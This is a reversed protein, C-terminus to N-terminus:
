ARLEQKWFYEPMDERRLGSSKFTEPNPCPCGLGRVSGQDPIKKCWKLKWALEDYTLQLYHSTKQAEADILPTAATRAGVYGYSFTAVRSEDAVLQGNRALTTVVELVESHNDHGGYEGGADRSHTFVWDFRRGGVCNLLKRQMEGQSNLVKGGPNKRDQYDRFDFHYGDAKVDACFDCFFSRREPLEVCMAVAMWKWEKLVRMIAGMWLLHDDHHAVIALATTMLEEGWFGARV